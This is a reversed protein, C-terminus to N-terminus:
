SQEVLVNRMTEHRKINLFFKREYLLLYQDNLIRFFYAKDRRSIRTVGYVWISHGFVFSLSTHQIIELQLIGTPKPAIHFATQM